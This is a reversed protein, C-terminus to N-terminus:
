SYTIALLEETLFKVSNSHFVTHFQQENYFTHCGPLQNRSTKNTLFLALSGPLSRGPFRSSELTTCCQLPFIDPSNQGQIELDTLQRLELFRIVTSQLTTSM